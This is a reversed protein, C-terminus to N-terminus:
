VWACILRGLDGGVRLGDTRNSFYRSNIKGAGLIETHRFGLMTLEDVFEAPRFFLQFPEGAASVRRSLVHLALRQRLGLLKPEVAFDFVVGTGAPLKAIYGLTAMCSERTLYPTVGLWSFFAPLNPDFGSLDLGSALTHREFDVAAYTLSQPVAIAAVALRGRKWTQTAPHDVEFVRLDPYPNRYAFTDLGAGVVVYQKVGREFAEALQDEAYRSRAAMFARFARATSSQAKPSSRLKDVAEAGIIPVALPDDLVRPQDFLQHAARRVAVGHATRSFRGEQL